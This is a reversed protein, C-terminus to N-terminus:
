IVVVLNQHQVILNIGVVVLSARKEYERTLCYNVYKYNSLIFTNNHKHIYKKNVGEQLALSLKNM